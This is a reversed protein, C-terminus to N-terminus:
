KGSTSELIRMKDAMSYKACQEPTMDAYEECTPLYETDAM